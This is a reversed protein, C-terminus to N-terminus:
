LWVVTTGLFVAALGIVSLQRTSIAWWLILAGWAVTGVCAAVAPDHANRFATAHRCRGSM